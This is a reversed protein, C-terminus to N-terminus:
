LCISCGKEELVKAEEGFLEGDAVREEQESIATAGDKRQSKSRRNKVLLEGSDDKVGQKSSQDVKDAELGRRQKINERM